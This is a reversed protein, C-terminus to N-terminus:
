RKLMGMLIRNMPTIEAPITTWRVTYGAYELRYTRDIDFAREQGFERQLATPAPCSRKPYCCPLVAINGQREIALQICQDTLLGCAHASVISTGMPLKDMHDLRSQQFTVKEAIWPAIPLLCALLKKFSPPEKRDVLMVTQVKREFLALLIGVLGHGCCLDAMHQSRLDKRIRAVFEFCELVEKIPIVRDDTIARVLRDPLSDSGFRTEAFASSLSNRSSAWSLDQQHNLSPFFKFTGNPRLDQMETITVERWPNM